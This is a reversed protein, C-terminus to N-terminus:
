LHQAVSAREGFPDRGLYVRATMSPDAHGLQDAIDVLPAGGEHALTAVTRRFSHPTSWAHGASALVDAVANAANSQDWEVLGARSPQGGDEADSVFHPAGFVYGTTGTLEARARLRESLWVPLTLVRHSSGSKTGRIEVRGTALNVCEWTLRRAETIRVGTGALFALLDAVTRRKRRTQPLLDPEAALADAHAVIADREERTFARSTDRAVGSKRRTPAPKSAQVARVQRLANSALVGNDVAHQLVGMLVSRTIKAAGTGHKDAVSQLFKRLRQPNNAEELTLGRVASGQTDIYRDFTRGYDTITREALGSAPLAIHELWLRGAAVFLTASTMDANDASREAFARELAEEAKARTPGFRSLERMIGDSGRYYCRARWREASRTHKARKWKRSEPDRRQPTVEVTGREGVELARASM